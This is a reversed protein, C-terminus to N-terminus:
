VSPGQSMWAPAEPTWFYLNKTSPKRKGDLDIYHLAGAGGMSYVDDSDDLHVTYCPNRGHLFVKNPAMGIYKMLVDEPIKAVQAEYDVICGNGKMLDLADHHLIKIGVESLVEMTANHLDKIQDSSLLKYQGGKVPVIGEATVM